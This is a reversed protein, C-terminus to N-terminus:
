DDDTILLVTQTKPLDSVNLLIHELWFCFLFWKFLQKLTLSLIIFYLFIAKMLTETLFSCQFHRSLLIHAYFDTFSSVKVPYIINVQWPLNMRPSMVSTLLGYRIRILRKGMWTNPLQIDFLKTPPEQGQYAQTCYM